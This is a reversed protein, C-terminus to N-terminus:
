FPSRLCGLVASRENQLFRNVADKVQARFLDKLTSDDDALLVTIINKISNEM